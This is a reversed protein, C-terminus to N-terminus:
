LFLWIFSEADYRFLHAMDSSSLLELGMFPITGTRDTYPAASASLATALDWDNVGVVRGSNRYYM